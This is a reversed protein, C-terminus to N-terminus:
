GGREDGVNRELEPRGGGGEKKVAGGVALVLLPPVWTGEEVGAGRENGMGVGCTAGSLLWGAEENGMGLLLLLLLKGM